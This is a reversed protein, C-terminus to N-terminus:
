RKPTVRARAKRYAEDHDDSVAIIELAEKTRRFIL